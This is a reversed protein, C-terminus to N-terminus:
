RVRNQIRLALRNMPFSKHIFDDAGAVFAYDETQSDKHSSLFIIPLHSWDPDSRLIKCLELGNVEPMEVDLVIVDPNVQKLIPWFNLTNGLTTIEFGLAGLSRDLLSLLALDDDVILVKARAYISGYLQQAADLIDEAKAPAQFIRNVGHQIYDIRDLWDGGHLLLMVPLDVYNQKLTILTSLSQNANAVDLLVLDPRNVQLGVLLAEIETIATLEVQYSSQRETLAQVLHADNSYVLLQQCHELSESPSQNISQRLQQVLRQLDQTLPMEPAKLCREIKQAFLSGEMFSFCGLAGALKHAAIIGQQKLDITLCQNQLATVVHDLQDIREEMEGKHQIWLNQTVADMQESVSVSPVPLPTVEPVPPAHVSVPTEEYKPNLRYGFGYLTEIFDQPAGCTKLKHRLSKIHTRVAYLSPTGELAWINDIIGDLTQSKYPHRLFLELISYEKPTLNLLQERFATEFSSPDLSLAGWELKPSAVSATRRLLARVRALLEPLHIPKILYDDAGADLGQIKDDPNDQATLMLIPMQHKSQRIRTCLKRGNLDPLMLDLIILDYDFMAIFELGMQGTTAIDIAYHQKILHQAITNALLEDDDIM